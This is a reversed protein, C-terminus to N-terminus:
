QARSPAGSIVGGLGFRNSGHNGGASQILNAHPALVEGYAAAARLADAGDAAGILVVLRQQTADVMHTFARQLLLIANSWRCFRLFTPILPSGNVGGFIFTTPLRSRSCGSGVVM